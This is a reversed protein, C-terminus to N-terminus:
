CYCYRPPLTLDLSRSNMVYIMTSLSCTPPTPLIPFPLLPSLPSSPSLFASLVIRSPGRALHIFCKQNLDSIKLNRSQCPSDELQDFAGHISLTHNPPFSLAEAKFTERVLFFFMAYRVSGPTFIYNKSTGGTPTM